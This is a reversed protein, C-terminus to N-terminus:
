WLLVSAALACTANMLDNDAVALPVVVDLLVVIGPVVATLAPLLTRRGTAAARTTLKACKAAVRITADEDAALTRCYSVRSRLHIVIPGRSTNSAVVHSNPAVAATTFSGQVLATATQRTNGQLSSHRVVQCLPIAAEIKAPLVTSVSRKLIQRRNLSELARRRSPTRPTLRM